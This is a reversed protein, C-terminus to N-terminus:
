YCSTFFLWFLARCLAVLFSCCHSCCESRYALVLLVCTYINDTRPTPYYYYDDDDVDDHLLLLLRLLLLLLRLLLLQLWITRLHPLVHLSSATDQFAFWRRTYLRAADQRGKRKLKTASHICKVSKRIINGVIFTFTYM